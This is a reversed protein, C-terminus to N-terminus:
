GSDDADDPADAAADDPADSGADTTSADNADATTGDTTTGDSPADSAGDVPADSTGDVPADATGDKGGDTSTPADLATVDAIAADVSGADIKTRDFDVALECGAIAFLTLASTAVLARRAQRRNM